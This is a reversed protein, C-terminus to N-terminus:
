DPDVDKRMPSPDISEATSVMFRNTTMESIAHDNTKVGAPVQFPDVGHMKKKLQEYDVQKPVPPDDESAVYCITVVPNPLSDLYIKMTKNISKQTTAVVVDYGYHPDSLDSPHRYAM